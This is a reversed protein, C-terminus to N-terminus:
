NGGHIFDRDVQESLQGFRRERGRFESISALFDAETFDPWLVDTFYLESYASQWTLFNSLRVEGSTRIILDPDGVSQELLSSSILQESIETPQLEGKQVQFALRQMVRVIDQRGGYNLAFTLIMGTNHKTEDITKVIEEVVLPPLDQYQGIVKFRINQKNLLHRERELYRKLLRMLFSIEDKPRGWNETSFAYLTLEKLGIRVSKTIIKKAVRAGKIHGYIRPRLREKAWRGNGDM